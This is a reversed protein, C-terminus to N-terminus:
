LKLSVSIIFTRVNTILGRFLQTTVGTYISKFNSVQSSVPLIHTYYHGVQRGLNILYQKQEVLM